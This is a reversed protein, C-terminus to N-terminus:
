LINTALSNLYEQTEIETNPLIKFEIKEWIGGKQTFFTTFVSSRAGSVDPIELQGEGRPGHTRESRRPGTRRKLCERVRWILSTNLQLASLRSIWGM